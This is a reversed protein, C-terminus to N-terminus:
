KRRAGCWALFFVFFVGEGARSSERDGPLGEELQGEALGQGGEPLGLQGRGGRACCLEQKATQAARGGHAFVRPVPTDM